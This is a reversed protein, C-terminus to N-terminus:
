VIVQEEPLINFSANEVLNAELDRRDRLGKADPWLRKMNRIEAAIGKLNGAAVLAVINFMEKRRPKAQSIDGGRNYVLSLLAGQADPPLKETGPYMKRVQRAYSPLTTQYFVKAAIAYPIKVGKVSALTTKAAERTKGRITKLLQLDGSSIYSGWANTLETETCYGCDYGIGITVGSEGGPWTPQQYRKEYIEKSSVEFGILLDISKKSIILSGGAPIKPLSSNIYGEIKAITQPGIIGDADANVLKQVAKIHTTLNVSNLSVNGRRELELCTNIDFSGTEAVGINKQITKIRTTLGTPM